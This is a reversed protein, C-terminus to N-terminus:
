PVRVGEAVRTLRDGLQQSVEVLVGLGGHEVWMMQPLPTDTRLAPRGRVTAHAAMPMAFGPLGVLTKDHILQVEIWGGSGSWRCTTIERPGTTGDQCTQGPGIGSPLYRLLVAATGPGATKVPHRAASTSPRPSVRAASPKTTPPGALVSPHARATTGATPTGRDASADVTRPRFAHYTPLVAAAVVVAAASGAIATRRRITRHHRRRAQDALTRPASVEGVHEAMAQRLEKELDM